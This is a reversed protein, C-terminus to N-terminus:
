TIFMKSTAQAVITGNKTYATGKAYIIKKVAFLANITTV